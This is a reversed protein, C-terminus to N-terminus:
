AAGAERRISAERRSLWRLLLAAPPERTDVLVRDIPTELCRRRVEERFAALRELYADRLLKPEVLLRKRTELGEFLTMEDFPFDIEDGDFVHFLTVQHGRSVMQRLLEFPRELPTFFDTFVLVLGRKRTSDVVRALGAELATGGGPRVGELLSALHNLHGMRGRAPVALEVDDAVTVLGVADQQRLLLFALSAVLVSAYELKTLTGEAGYGMSASTDLVSFVRLNTEHEFKKVYYRDLRGYAKWDIHRIEDGPSYEKHEAFEISSGHHPSRHIGQLLGDVVRRSRLHLGKLRALARPDLLAPAGTEGGERPEM